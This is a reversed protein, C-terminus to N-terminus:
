GFFRLRNATSTSRVFFRLRNATSTSRVFNRRSSHVRTSMEVFREDYGARPSPARSHPVQRGRGSVQRGRGSVQRVKAPAQNGRALVQPGKGSVRRGELPLRLFPDDVSDHYEKRGLGFGIASCLKIQSVRFTEWRM